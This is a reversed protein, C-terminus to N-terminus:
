RLERAIRPIHGLRAVVFGALTHFDGEPVAPLDFLDRFDDLPLRGDLLWSGDPRQVAPPEEDEASEPMDGVIAQLIDTLTLLGEVTGYEDLM